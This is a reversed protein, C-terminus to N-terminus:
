PGQLKARVEDISGRVPVYHNAFNIQVVNKVQPHPTISVWATRNVFCTSESVAAMVFSAFERDLMAGVAGVELLAKISRAGASDILLDSANKPSAPDAVVAYVTQTNVSITGYPPGVPVHIIAM